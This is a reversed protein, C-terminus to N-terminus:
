PQQPTLSFQGRESYFLSFVAGYYKFGKQTILLRDEAKELLGHKLCYNIENKYEVSADKGLINSLHKLSFAGNYASIAIYKSAIEKSPLLYTDGGEYTKYSMLSRIDKNGKGVNYSVGHKSMSQASVGFGKYSVGELMRSRLYSSLGRDTEDISFTNEGFRAKYGLGILGEYYLGYQEYLVEKTPVDKNAIMNTRLEYLTVQQPCLESILKLDIDITQKNQGKLGYMLDINVKCIGLSLVETVWKKMVSIENIKRHHHCLVKSDTSQIGLSLRHIGSDVMTTIKGESLTDFTGEISPEYDDSLEIDAIAYRYLNMLKLFNDESLATPTGGGIDFGRLLINPYTEKFKSIDSYLTDIYATQAKEDPCVMRTYECFSCLQRCFPIHVYFSMERENDFPLNKEIRYSSWDEPSLPYSTNWIPNDKRLPYTEEVNM